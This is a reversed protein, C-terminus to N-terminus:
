FKQIERRITTLRRLLRARKFAGKVCDKCKDTFWNSVCSPIIIGPFAAAIGAKIAIMLAPCGLQALATELVGGTMTNIKSAVSKMKSGVVEIGHKANRAGKVMTSGIAYLGDGIKNMVNARRRRKGVLTDVAHIVFTIIANVIGHADIGMNKLISPLYKELEAIACGRMLEIGAKLVKSFVEKQAPSMGLLLRRKEPVAPPSHCNAAVLLVLFLIASSTKM